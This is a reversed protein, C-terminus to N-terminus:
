NKRTPKFRKAWDKAKEIDEKTIKEYFKKDLGYHPEATLQKSNNLYVETLRKFKSYLMTKNNKEYAWKDYFFYLAKISIYVDHGDEIGNAKMFSEYRKLYNRNLTEEKHHFDKSAEEVLHSVDINIKCYIRDFPLHDKLQIMFSTKGIAAVVSKKYLTYLDIRKIKIKGPKIKFQQLFIYVPSSQSAALKQEGTEEELTDISALLEETSDDILLSKRQM